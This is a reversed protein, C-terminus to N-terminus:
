FVQCRSGYICFGTTSFNKCLKTKYKPHTLCVQRLRLDSLDHAFRCDDGYACIGTKNFARCIETRYVSALRFARSQELRQNDSLSQ